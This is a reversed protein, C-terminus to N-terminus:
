QLRAELLDIVTDFFLTNIGSTASNPVRSGISTNGVPSGGAPGAGLVGGGPPQQGDGRAARAAEIEEPTMDDFKGGRGIEIGLSEALDAYDEQPYCKIVQTRTINNIVDM